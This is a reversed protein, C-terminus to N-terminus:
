KTFKRRWNEEIMLSVSLLLFAAATAGNVLTMLGDRVNMKRTIKIWRTLAM